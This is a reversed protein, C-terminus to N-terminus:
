SWSVQYRCVPAGRARCQDEVIRVNRAGVMSLGEKYWGVVTACDAASFTEADYTTMVGSNPGTPEWTRRGKDYYFAYVSPAKAMFKQPDAPHLFGTHVTTLNERASARGMEEFLRTDGGGLATVIAKDLRDSLEFDYWAVNMASKLQEQDRAPLAALVKQWGAEGFRERVFGIRAKVINGKVRM